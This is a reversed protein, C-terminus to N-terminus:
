SNKQFCLVSEVIKSCKNYARARPNIGSMSTKVVFDDRRRMVLGHRKAIDTTISPVDNHIEKYHSDQVVLVAAGGDKLCASVNAISRDIKDFYDVHTKLYYSSSAHSDHASVKQLFEVCKSGWEPRIHVEEKPVKISGIMRRSLNDVSFDILPQLIALQIRTAATYDIRTCYPPSTLVFDVSNDLSFPATSDFLRTRVPVPALSLLDSKAVIADFMSRVKKQFRLSIEGRSFSSRAEGEKPKRLWTPNSSQFVSALNKALDFLAVYFTAALSSVHDFNVGRPTLTLGGLLTSRISTEISRLCDATDKEFWWLLPDAKGCETADDGAHKLIKATLPLISDAESGLLMRSRAVIIMVPNLDLGIASFGMRSAAQTTTGSGNWPDLIVAKSDLRASSLISRAFIDPYGAYYPFFEDWASQAQKRRKPNLILLESFSKTFRQRVRPTGRCILEKDFSPVTNADVELGEPLCSEKGM